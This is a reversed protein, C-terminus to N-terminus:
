KSADNDDPLAIDSGDLRKLKNKCALAVEGNAGSGICTVGYDSIDAKIVINADLDSVILLSGTAKSSSISVIHEGNNSIALYRIASGKPHELM